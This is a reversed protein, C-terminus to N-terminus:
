NLSPLQKEDVPIGLSKLTEMVGDTSDVDGGFFVEYCEDAKGPPIAFERRTGDREFVFLRNARRPIVYEVGEESNATTDNWSEKSTSRFSTAFHGRMFWDKPGYFQHFVAVLNLPRDVKIGTGQRDFVIGLNPQWAPLLGFEHRGFSETFMPRNLYQVWRVSCIAIVVACVAMAILRYPSLLRREM